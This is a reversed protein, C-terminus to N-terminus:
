TTTSATCNRGSGYANLPRHNASQEASFRTTRPDHLLSLRSSSGRTRRSRCRWRSSVRQPLALSPLRHWWAALWHPMSPLWDSRQLQQVASQPPASLWHQGVIFQDFRFVDSHTEDAGDKVCDEHPGLDSRKLQTVDPSERQPHM